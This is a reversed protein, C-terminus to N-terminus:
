FIQNLCLNRFLMFRDLKAMYAPYVSVSLTQKIIYFNRKSKWHFYQLFSVLVYTKLKKLDTIKSSTLGNSVFGGNVVLNQSLSQTLLYKRLFNLQYSKKMALNLTHTHTHTHTHTDVYEVVIRLQFM